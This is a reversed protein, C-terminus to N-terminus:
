DCVVAIEKSFVTYRSIKKVQERHGIIISATFASIICLMKTSLRSCAFVSIPGLGFPNFSSALSTLFVTACGGGRACHYDGRGGIIM